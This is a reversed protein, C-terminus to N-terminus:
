RVKLFVAVEYRVLKKSLCALACVDILPPDVFFRISWSTVISSGRRCLRDILYARPFIFPLPSDM